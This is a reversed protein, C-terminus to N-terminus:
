LEGELTALALTILAVRVKDSKASLSHKL